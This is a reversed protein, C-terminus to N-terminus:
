ASKPRGAEHNRTNDRNVSKLLEVVDRDDLDYWNKYADAVAFFAGSRINLCVIKDVQSRLLNIASIAATPVAVILEKIKNRRVVKITTLM